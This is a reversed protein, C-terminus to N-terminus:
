PSGSFSVRIFLIESRSGIRLPPGWFGYGSSVFSHVHGFQKYGWDLPFLKQTFLHNPWIQGRHTHGSLSMHVPFEPFAELEIPQHDLVVLPLEGKIARDKFLRDISRRNRDTKDRRGVIQLKGDITHVDDLLVHIGINEMMDTIEQRKGGYYEHNGLVGYIGLPAKLKEFLKHLGQEMFYDPEDDVFDGVIFIIDPKLSTLKELLRKVAAKGALPGFHTDSIVAAKMESLETSVEDVQISHDRIVPSNALYYGFAAYVIFLLLVIISMALVLPEFSIGAWSGIWVIVHAVPFALMAFQIFGFWIAGVTKLFKMPKFIQGLPFAYGAFLFLLVTLWFSQTGSVNDIVFHFLWAFYIHISSYVVLFLMISVIVKLKKM